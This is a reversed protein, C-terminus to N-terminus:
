SCKRGQAVVEGIGPLAENATHTTCRGYCVEIGGFEFSPEGAFDLIEVSVLKETFVGALHVEKSLVGDHRSVLGDFIGVEVEFVLVSHADADNPAGAYTANFGIVLLSSLEDKTVSSWAEAREEDRLDDGIDCGAVDRNAVAEATGIEAGDGCACRRRCGYAYGEVKDTEAAGICDYGAAGFSGYGDGAYTSEGGHLSEGCAVIVRLGSGAREILVAVTEDHTLTTCAENELLVLMGHLTTSMDIAFESATTVRAVCIVDSRRMWLAITSRADHCLSEAVATELGGVDVVDIDM